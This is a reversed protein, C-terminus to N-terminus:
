HIVREGVRMLQSVDITFVVVRAPKALGKKISFEPYGKTASPFCIM